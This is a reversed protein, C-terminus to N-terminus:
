LIKKGAAPPLRTKHADAVLGVCYARVEDPTMARFTAPTKVSGDANTVEPQDPHHTTASVHGTATLEDPQGDPGLADTSRARVFLVDDGIDTASTISITM